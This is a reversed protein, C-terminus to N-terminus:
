LTERATSWHDGASHTDRRYRIRGNLSANVLRLQEIKPARETAGVLSAIQGAGVGSNFVHQWRGDFRTSKLPLAITGFIHPADSRVASRASPSQAEGSTALIPALALGAIAAITWVSGAM